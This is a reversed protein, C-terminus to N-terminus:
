RYIRKDISGIFLVPIKQASIIGFHTYPTYFDPLVLIPKRENIVSFLV